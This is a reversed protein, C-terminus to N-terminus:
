YTEKQKATNLMAFVNLVAFNQCYRLVLYNMKVLFNHYSFHSLECKLRVM